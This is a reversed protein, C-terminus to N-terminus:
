NVAWEFTFTNPAFGDEIRQATSNVQKKTRISYYAVGNNVNSIYNTNTGKNFSEKLIVTFSMTSPLSYLISYAGASYTNDAFWNAPAHTGSVYQAADWLDNMFDIYNKPVVTTFPSYVGYYPMASSNIVKPISIEDSLLRGFVPDPVDEYNAVLLVGNIELYQVDLTCSWTGNAPNADMFTWKDMGFHDANGNFLPGYSRWLTNTTIVGGDLLRDDTKVVPVVVGSSNQAYLKIEAANVALEGSALTAPKAGVATSRKLLITNPM